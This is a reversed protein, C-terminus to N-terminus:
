GYREEMWPDGRNHYGRVEWFGPRDELLLEVRTVWKPSKWFYLKPLVLRVPGGHQRTLPAGEWSHAFMVDEGAFDELSLNTTYGDYCTLSVFRATSKPRAFDLLDRAMVGAFRNDYRSWQTVCHIDRVMETQPLAMFGDWDLALRNEVLGELRLRFRDKAVDPQVGLDLVPWDQVLTQGPPLRDRAPDGHTGTLLRGEEAWREKTRILKDKVAGTLPIDDDAMVADSAARRGPRL